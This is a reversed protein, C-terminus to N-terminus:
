LLHYFAIVFDESIYYLNKSAMIQKRAKTFTNWWHLSGHIRLICITDVKTDATYLSFSLLFSARHKTRNLRPNKQSKTGKLNVYLNCTYTKHDQTFMFTKM